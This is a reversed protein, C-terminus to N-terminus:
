CHLKPPLQGSLAEPVSQAPRGEPYHTTVDDGSSADELASSLEKCRICRIFQYFCTSGCASLRCGVVLPSRPHHILHDHDFKSKSIKTTLM